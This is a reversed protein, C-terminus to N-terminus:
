FSLAVSFNASVPAGFGLYGADGAYFEGSEYYRKDLANDVNLRLTWDTDNARFRYRAGVDLVWYSDIAFQQTQDLYQGDVVRARASVSLGALQPIALEGWVNFQHDPVYQPRKGDRTPDGTDIQRAELLMAAVGAQLHDTVMGRLAFEFGRHRQLGNFGDVGDADMMALDQEIQFAAAEGSLRGGLWEGKLGAEWQRSKQVGLPEWANVAFRNAFGGDQLGRTWTLYTHVNELPAYMLALTPSWANVKDNSAPDDSYTNEYQGHRVGLLASFKESLAVTDTAFFGTEKYKFEPAVGWPGTAPIPLSDLEYANNPGVDPFARLGSTDYASHQVGIVVDHRLRGTTLAGELHLHGGRSQWEYQGNTILAGDTFDGNDAVSYPYTLRSDRGTDQYNLSARLKWTASLIVDTGLAADFTEHLNRAWDQMVNTKVGTDLIVGDATIMPGYYGARKLKQGGISTWVTAAEGLKWETSFSAMLRDGRAHDYFNDFEDGALVLRYGFRDDAVTDSVDVQGYMRGFTNGDLQLSTSFDPAPRKRELNIAGGPAMFGFRLAAPGKLLEVRSKDDISPAVTNIVPLGGLRYGNFNDVRFGRSGLNQFGYFGGPMQVAISPDNQLVEKLTFARQNEILEENYVGVSFPVEILPAESFLFASADKEALVTVTELEEPEQAQLSLVPGVSILAALFKLGGNKM